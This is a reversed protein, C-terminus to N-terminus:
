ARQRGVAQRRAISARRRPGRLALKVRDSRDAPLPLNGPHQQRAAGRRVPELTHQIIGIGGASATKECAARDPQVGHPTMKRVALRDGRAQSLVADGNEIAEAVQCLGLCLGPRRMKWPKAVDLLFAVERPGISPQRGSSLGQRAHHPISAWRFPCAAKLIAPFIPTKLRSRCKGSAFLRSEGRIKLCKLSTLACCIQTSPELLGVPHDLTGQTRILPSVIGVWIDLDCNISFIAVVVSSELRSTFVTM